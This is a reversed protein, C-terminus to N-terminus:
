LGWTTASEATLTLLLRREAVMAHFFEEPDPHPQGTITEYLRLLDQGAADSPRTSVPGLSARVALAAYQGFSGGLVHLVARPDRRLNRTKARTATVSVYGTSGRFVVAVNSSQPSGDARLTVLVAQHRDSLWRVLADDLMGALNM